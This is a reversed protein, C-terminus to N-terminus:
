KVGIVKKCGPMGCELSSSPDVSISHMEEVLYRRGCICCPYTGDKDILDMQADMRREMLEIPDPIYVM